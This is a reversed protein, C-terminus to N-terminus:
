SSNLKTRKQLAFFKHKSYDPLYEFVQFFYEFVLAWGSYAM